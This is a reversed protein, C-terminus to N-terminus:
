YGVHVRHFLSAHPVRHATLIGRACDARACDVRTGTDSHRRSRTQGLVRMFSHRCTCSPTAAPVHLLHTKGRRGRREGWNLIGADRRLDRAAGPHITCAVTSPPNIALEIADGLPMPLPPPTSPLECARRRQPRGRRWLAAPEGRPLLQHRRQLRDRVARICGGGGPHAGGCRPAYGKDVDLKQSKTTWCVIPGAKRIDTTLLTHRHSVYVAHHM